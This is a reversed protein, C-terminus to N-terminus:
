FSTLRNKSDKSRIVSDIGRILINNESSNEIKDRISKIRLNLNELSIPRIVYDDVGNSILSLVREKKNDSTIVVIKLEPNTKKIKKIESAFSLPCELNLVLLDYNNSSLKQMVEVSTGVSEVFDSDESLIAKRILEGDLFPDDLFLVRM